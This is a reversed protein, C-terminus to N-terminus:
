GALPVSKDQFLSILKREHAALGETEVDDFSQILMERAITGFQKVQELTIGKGMLYPLSWISFGYLTLPISNKISRYIHEVWSAAEKWDMTSHSWSYGAGRINYKEAERHIPTEIDHYYLQINFFTPAAEELFAITNMISERTEGPFGAIISAFTAIGREKLKAIGEQYKRTNAFKNMNNLIRQDGSEIGLFVAVCGSERMLDFAEDDANSCRFFSIWQFDFKNRIMMRLLEKFRPLPVNFTDDVFVVRRAGMGHIYRLQREVVETSALKHEGAVTPFNCFSCAFPCSIATRLYIPQDFFEKRFYSWDIANADLANDEVKRATRQFTENDSTYILNPVSSLGSLGPERLAACVQSLSQEGQSDFIYIDAGIAQLLYDQTEADQGLCLHYIFPGGVIIKTERNKSRIFKVVDIIPAPDVYYTTTIAVANPARSLMDALADREKNFFNVLEANFGRKRLYSVLYCAGLSPVEFVNLEPNTGTAGALAHNLLDMYTVRKGNLLVSNYKAERYAGSFLDLEKQSKVFADFNLDNYGVVICDTETNPPPLQPPFGDAGTTLIPLQTSM